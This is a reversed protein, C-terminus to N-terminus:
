VHGLLERVVELALSGRAATVQALRVLEEVLDGGEVAVDHRALVPPAVDVREDVLPALSYILEAREEAYARSGLRVPAHGDRGAPDLEHVVCSRDGQLRSSGGRGGIERDLRRCAVNQRGTPLDASQQCSDVRGDRLVLRLQRRDGVRESGVEVGQL